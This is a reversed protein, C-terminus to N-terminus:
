GTVNLQPVTGAGSAHVKAGTANVGPAAPASTVSVTVVPGADAVSELDAVALPATM